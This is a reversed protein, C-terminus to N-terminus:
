FSCQFDSQLLVTFLLSCEKRIHNKFILFFAAQCVQSIKTYRIDDKTLIGKKQKKKLRPLQYFSPQLISLIPHKSPLALFTKALSEQAWIKTRMNNNSVQSSRERPLFCISWGAQVKKCANVDSHMYLVSLYFPM